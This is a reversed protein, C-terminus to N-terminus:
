YGAANFSKPAVETLYKLLWQSFCPKAPPPMPAELGM